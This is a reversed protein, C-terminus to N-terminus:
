VGVTAIDLVLGSTITGATMTGTITYVLKLYREVGTDPLHPINFKYGAKLDATAVTPSTYLISGSPFSSDDDTVLTITLDTGGAFDENVECVIPNDKRTATPESSDIAGLDLISESDATGTLAQKDSFLTFKDVIM